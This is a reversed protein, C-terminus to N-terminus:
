KTKGDLWTLFIEATKLVIDATMTLDGKYLNVANNLAVSANIGNRKAEVAKDIHTQRAEETLNGAFSQVPTPAPNGKPQVCKNPCAMFSTYPKGTKKSIGAPIIKMENGCVACIM